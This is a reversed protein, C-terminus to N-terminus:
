GADRAMLDAYTERRTVIRAEGDAVFAIAPRPQGNYNSAMSNCYAGTGFMVLVDGVEPEQLPADLAVVDGSECHKGAVTVVCTRPSAAKSAIACEYDAHYLATRINDSMGGDVDVFTRIGPLEKITGVHYLTIGAPGAISRGPEVVIRPVCLGRESCSREVSDVVLGVFSDISAPEDEAQYAIGLGGGVDLQGLVVGREAAVRAMLGAVVDVAKAYPAIDLVQSGVHMHLGVLRVGPTDLAQCIGDFAIDDRLTFGFKSDETGTTIYDNTDVVVGPTIRLLVDQVVNNREAAEAIRELEIPSDVVIRGAGASVAEEIELPTKNNGHVVLRAPALGADLARALEGGGSVDLCLGEEDVLRVMARNLFAKGAYAVDFGAPLRASRSEFADRYAHMRSRLDAEDYVYLATGERGALEVMDVGGVFLHGDERVEATEPLVAGLDSVSRRDPRVNRPAPLSM